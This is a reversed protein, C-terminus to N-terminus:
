MVTHNSGFSSRSQKMIVDLQVGINDLQQNRYHQHNEGCKFALLMSIRMFPKELLVQVLGHITRGKSPAKLKLVCVLSLLLKTKKRWFPFLTRPILFFFVINPLDDKSTMPLPPKRDGANKIDKGDM